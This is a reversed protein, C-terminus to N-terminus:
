RRMTEASHKRDAWAMNNVLVPTRSQAQSAAIDNIAHVEANIQGSVHDQADIRAQMAAIQQQVAAMTQLAQEASM